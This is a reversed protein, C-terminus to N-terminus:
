TRGAASLFFGSSGCWPFSKGRQPVEPNKGGRSTGGGFEGVGEKREERGQRSVPQEEGIESGKVPHCSKCSPCSESGNPCNTGNTTSIATGSKLCSKRPNVPNSSEALPIAGRLSRRAEAGRRSIRSNKRSGIELGSNEGLVGLDGLRRQSVGARAAAALNAWGTKASKADKALFRSSRGSGRDKQGSEEAAVSFRGSWAKRMADLCFDRLSKRM